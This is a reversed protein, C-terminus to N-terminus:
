ISFLQSDLILGSEDITEVMRSRTVNNCSVSGKELDKKWTEERDATKNRIVALKSEPWVLVLSSATWPKVSVQDLAM